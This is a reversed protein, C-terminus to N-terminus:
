AFAGRAALAALGAGVALAVLAVAPRESPPFPLATTPLAAIINASPAVYRSASADAILIENRGGAPYNTFHIHWDSFPYFILEGWVVGSERLAATVRDFIERQSLLRTPRVDLADATAHASEADDARIWSTVILPRDGLAHRIVEAVQSLRAGKQIEVADPRRDSVRTLEELTFHAAFSVSM